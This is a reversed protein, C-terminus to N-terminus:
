RMYVGLRPLLGNILLAVALGTGTERHWQAGLAGDTSHLEDDHPASDGHLQPHLQPESAQSALDTSSSAARALWLALCTNVFQAVFLKKAVSLAMEAKSTHREM